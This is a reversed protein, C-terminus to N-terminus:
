NIALMRARPEEEDEEEDDEDDEIQAPGLLRFSVATRIVVAAAPTRTPATPYATQRRYKLYYIGCDHYAM